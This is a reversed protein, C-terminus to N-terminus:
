RLLPALAQAVTALNDENLGAINIRGDGVLYVHHRERLLRVDDPGIGLLSFMGQQRTLWGLDLEPRLAAIEGALTGRLAQLRAAMAALEAQWTERLTPDTLVREVLLAGHAPPMSHMSRAINQLQSEIAGRREASGAVACLLGTRERYLGFSKSCSVAVLFQPLRRAAERVWAVDADLGRGLGQYAVDFFPVLGRAEIVDLIERWSDPDPNAGTPNYCSAQLLIATGAAARRLADLMPGPVFRRSASDYCPFRDLRLGGGALLGEHLAWTPEGLLISSGARARHLIEAGIRLASCGGPTQILASRPRISQALEGFVLDHIGELFGPVGAPALYAKSSQANILAHEATAVASMVPTRGTRDRYVGITLDLKAPFPDQRYATMLSTISDPPLEQLSDLPMKM